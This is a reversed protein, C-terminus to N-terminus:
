RDQASRAAEAVRPVARETIRDLAASLAMALGEPSQQPMPELEDYHASWLVEGSATDTVRLELAIRGVWSTSSRDVEEIALLRGGLTVPANADQSVERFWGSRELANELYQAVLTGPPSSWRHYHYYDLRYPSLRYVIREEDYATATEFPEIGIALTGRDPTNADSQAALAYYRTPPSKSGCAVLLCLAL